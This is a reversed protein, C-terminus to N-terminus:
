FPIDDESPGPDGRDRQGGGQRAQEAEIAALLEREKGHWREKAPDALTKRCGAAYFDLDQASANAVPAGKSRGYNPFTAGTAPRPAAPAAPTATMALARFVVDIRDPALIVGEGVTVGACVLTLRSGIKFM